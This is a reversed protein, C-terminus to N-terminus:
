VDFYVNRRADPVTRDPDFGRSVVTTGEVRLNATLDDFHGAGGAVSELETEDLETGELAGESILQQKIGARVRLVDDASCTFGEANAITAIAEAADRGTKGAVAAAVREELPGHCSLREFFAIANDMTM